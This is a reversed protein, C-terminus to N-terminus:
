KKRRRAHKAALANLRCALAPGETEHKFFAYVEQWSERAIKRAWDQLDKDSYESRRLRLFGWSGTAVLPPSRESEDVDGGCLAANHEFLTAYVDDSFWTPHRFEFAARVTAPLLRLFDQLRPVDKRLHPPLQFLIPGLKERLADAAEFFYRLSDEASKLQYRHTIARPAKLVFKFQAPVQAHWGALVAATPMRYFTANIEVTPLREGYHRLMDAAKLKEPYFSGRWEAYSFGSTGARLLM